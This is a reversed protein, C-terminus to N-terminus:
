FVFSNQTGASRGPEKNRHPAQRRIGIRAIDKGAFEVIERHALWEIAGHFAALLGAMLAPRPPFQNERGDLLTADHPQEDRVIAEVKHHCPTRSKTGVVQFRSRYKLRQHELLDRLDWACQNEM